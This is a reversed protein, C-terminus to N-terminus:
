WSFKIKKRVQTIFDPVSSFSADYTMAFHVLSGQLKTLTDYNVIVLDANPDEQYGTQLLALLFCGDPCWQLSDVEGCQLQFVM